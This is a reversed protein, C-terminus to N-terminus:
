DLLMMALCNTPGDVTLTGKGTGALMGVDLVSCYSNVLVPRSWRLLGGGNTGWMTMRLSFPVTGRRRDGGIERLVPYEVIPQDGEWGTTQFKIQMVKKERLGLHFGNVSTISLPNDERYLISSEIEDISIRLAISPNFVTLNAIWVAALKTESVSFNSLSLSNIRITPQRPCVSFEM